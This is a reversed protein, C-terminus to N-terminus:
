EFVQAVLSQTVLGGRAIMATVAKRLRAQAAGYTMFAKGIRKAALRRKRYEANFQKLVGEDIAREIAAEIKGTRQAVREVVIAHPTLQVGCRAATTEVDGTADAAEAVRNADAARCWWALSAGAPNRSAYVRGTPSIAVAALDFAALYDREVASVREIPM